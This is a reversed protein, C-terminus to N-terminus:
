GYTPVGVWVVGVTAASEMAAMADNYMSFSRDWPAKEWTAGADLTIWVMADGLTPEESSNLSRWDPRAGTAVIAGNIPTLGRIGDSDGFVPGVSPVRDWGAEEDWTWVASGPVAFGGAVLGTDTAVVVSMEEWDDSSEYTRVWDVGDASFWAAAPCSDDVTCGRSGVFLWGRAAGVAVYGGEVAIVDRMLASELDATSPQRTWSQGDQSTWVAADGTFAERDFDRGVALFGTPTAVVADMAYFYGERRGPDTVESYSWAEGDPSWMTFAAARAEPEGWDFWTIGVVVTGMPGAAVDLAEQDGPLGDTIDALDAARWTVSDTSTWIAVDEDGRSVTGVAIIEGGDTTISTASSGQADAAQPLDSRTWDVTIADLGPDAVVTTPSTAPVTTTPAISTTQAVTTVSIATDDPTSTVWDLMLPIGVILATIGAAVLAPLAKGLRRRLDREEATKARDIVEDIRVPDLRELVEPLTVPPTVEELRTALTRLDRGIDKDM